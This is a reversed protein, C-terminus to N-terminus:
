LLIHYFDLFKKKKILEKLIKREIDYNKEYKWKKCVKSHRSPQNRAHIVYGNSLSVKEKYCNKSNTLIVDHVVVQLIYECRNIIFKWSDNPCISYFGNIFFGKGYTITLKPYFHYSAAQHSFHSFLDGSERYKPSYIIEDHDTFIMRKAYYKYRYFCDNQKWVHFKKREYINHTFNDYIIDMVGKNNYYKLINEINVSCNTNYIVFKDVGFNIYYEIFEIFRVTDNYSYFMTLCFLLNFKIRKNHNNFINIKNKLLYFHIPTINIPIECMFNYYKEHVAKYNIIKIKSLYNYTSNFECYLYNRIYKESYAITRIINNRELFSSFIFLRDNIEIPNLVSNYVSDLGNYDSTYFYIKTTIFLILMLLIIIHLNNVKIVIKM